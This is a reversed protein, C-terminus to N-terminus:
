VACIESVLNYVEDASLNLIAKKLNNAWYPRTDNLEGVFHAAYEYEAKDATFIDGNTSVRYECNPDFENEGIIERVNPCTYELEDCFEKYDPVGCYSYYNCTTGVSIIRAKKEIIFDVEEGCGGYSTHGQIVFNVGELAKKIEPNQQNDACKCLLDSFIDAFFVIDYEDALEEEITISLNSKDYERDILFDNKGFLKNIFASVIEYDKVTSMKINFSTWVEM